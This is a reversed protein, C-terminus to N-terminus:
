RAVSLNPPADGGVEVRDRGSEKARYLAKDATEVLEHFTNGHKPYAAVGISVTVKVPDEGAGGFPQSRIAERIKEGTIFAGEADTESLLCIFEEGGYRAFTDIERL